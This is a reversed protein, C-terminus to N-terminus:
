DGAPGGQIQLSGIEGKTIDVYWVRGDPGETLYVPMSGDFRSLLFKVDSRDHVDVAFLESDGFDLVFYDGRLEAPYSTSEPFANGGIIAQFQFGACRQRRSAAVPAAAVASWRRRDQHGSLLGGGRPARPLRTEAPQRTAARTSTAWGLEAGTGGPRSRKQPTGAPTPSSSAAKTRGAWRSPPRPRRLRWVKAQNSTLSIAPARPRPTRRRPRGRHHPDVRGADGRWGPRGSGAVDDARPDALTPLIRNGVGVYLMRDPGLAIAGSRALDWFDVKLLERQLRRRRRAGRTTQRSSVIRPPLGLNWSGNASVTGRGAWTKCLQDRRSSSSCAGRFGTSGEPRGRRRLRRCVPMAVRAADRAARSGVGRKLQIPLSCPTSILFSTRCTPRLGVSRLGGRDQALQEGSRSLTSSTPGTQQQCRPRSTSGAAREGPRYLHHGSRLEALVRLRRDPRSLRPM